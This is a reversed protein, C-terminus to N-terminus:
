RLDETYTKHHLSEKEGTMGEASIFVSGAAVLNHGLLPHRRLLVELCPIGRGGRHLHFTDLPPPVIRHFELHM